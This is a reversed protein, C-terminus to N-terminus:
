AILLNLFCCLFSCVKPLQHDINANEAKEKLNTRTEKAFINM